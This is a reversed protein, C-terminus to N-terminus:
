PASPASGDPGGAAALRRARSRGIEEAIEAPAALINVVASSPEVRGDALRLYLMRGESEVQVIETVPDFGRILFGQTVRGPAVWAGVSTGDPLRRCISFRVEDGWVEYGHFEITPETAVLGAALVSATALVGGVRSLRFSLRDSPAAKM